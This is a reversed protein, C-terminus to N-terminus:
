ALPRFGHGWAATGTPFGAVPEVSRAAKVASGYARVFAHAELALPTAAEPDRMLEWPVSAANRVDTIV